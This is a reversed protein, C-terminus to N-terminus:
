HQYRFGPFNIPKHSGDRVHLLPKLQVLFSPPCFLSLNSRKSIAIRFVIGYLECIPLPITDKMDDLGKSIKNRVGIETNGRKIEVKGWLNETNGRDIDTKGRHNEGNVQSIEARGKAKECSGWGIETSRNRM